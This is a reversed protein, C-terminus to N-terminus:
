DAPDEGARIGRRWLRRFAGRWVAPELRRWAQEAAPGRPEEQGYTEVEYESTIEDIERRGGPVRRDLAHARERPTWAPGARVGVLRAAGDLRSYALATASLSALARRRRLWAALGTGLAGLLALGGWPWWAGAGQRSSSGGAAGALDGQGRQRPDEGTEPRESGLDEPEGAGAVAVARDIVPQSATPEFEVWGYGPFYAEPWAHADSEVVRYLGTDLDYAGEAFGVSLRAPIGASRLLIVMASAYYNCYGERQTFLVWDVPDQGAPPPPIQLSYTITQRLYNQIAVATDYETQGDAALQAALARTRETVSEPLSLYRERVDPPYADGAERLQIENAVSLTSLVTYAAGQPIVREARAAWVDFENADNVAAELTVDQSFAYPQSVGYLVTTAPSHMSFTATVPRRAAQRPRALGRDNAPLRIQVQTTSSWRGEQYDDFTRARWYYRPGPAVRVDMIPRDTLSVGGGLSLTRGYFDGGAPAAGYVAAFM